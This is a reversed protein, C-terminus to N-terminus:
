ERPEAKPSQADILRELQATVADLPETTKAARAMLLAGELGAVVTTACGLADDHDLGEVQELREALVHTWSIYARSAEAAAEPAERRSIAAAAIVCGGEFDSSYVLGKWVEVFARVPRDASMISQVVATTDSGAQRTAETVLDAKGAPFNIYLSRRAVKSETVIESVGVGAIGYRRVLEITTRVLKERATSM